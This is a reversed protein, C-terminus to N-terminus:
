PSFRRFRSSRSSARIGLSSQLAAALGDGKLHENEKAWREAEVIELPHTSAMLLQALLDDPYLGIPALIQDLQAERTPRRTRM